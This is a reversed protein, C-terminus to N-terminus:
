YIQFSLSQCFSKEAKEIFKKWLGSKPSQSQFLCLYFKRLYKELIKIFLHKALLMVCTKRWYM